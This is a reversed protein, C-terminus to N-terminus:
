GALRERWRDLQRGTAGAAITWRAVSGWRRDFETLFHRMTLPPAELLVAPRVGDDLPANARKELAAAVAGMRLGTLAYDDIIAEREVGALTLLLAVVVGTRDKGAACHVLAPTRDKALLRTLLHVFNPGASETFRLYTEAMWRAAEDGNAHPADCRFVQNMAARDLLPVCLHETGAAALASPPGALREENSRLDLVLSVGFEEILRRADDVTCGIPDDSRILVDPRTFSGDGTPLGGLTRANALGELDIWRRTGTVTSTHM